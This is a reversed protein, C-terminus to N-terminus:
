QVIKTDINYPLSPKMMNNHKVVAFNLIIDILVLFPHVM